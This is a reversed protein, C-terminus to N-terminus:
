RVRSFFFCVCVCASMSRTYGCTCYRCSSMVLHYTPSPIVMREVCRCLFLSSFRWTKSSALRLLLPTMRCTSAYLVGGGDGEMKKPRSPNQSEHLWKKVVVRCEYSLCFGFWDPPPHHPTAEDSARVWWGSFRGYCRGFQDSPRKVAISLLVHNYKM